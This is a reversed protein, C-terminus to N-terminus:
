LGQACLILLLFVVVVNVIDNNNKKVKLCQLENIQYKKLDNFFTNAKQACNM